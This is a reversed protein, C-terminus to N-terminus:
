KYSKVAEAENNFVEFVTILKTIQLLNYIKEPLRALKIQASVNRASTYAGVLEGIGTSDLYTVGGLDILIKRSGQKLLERLTNRFLSTSEGLTITGVCAMVTVGSVERTQIQVSM